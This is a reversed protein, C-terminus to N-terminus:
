SFLPFVRELKKKKKTQKKLDVREPVRFVFAAIFYDWDKYTLKPSNNKIEKKQKM